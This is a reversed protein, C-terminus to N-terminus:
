KRLLRYFQAPQSAYPPRIWQVSNTFTVPETPLWPGPLRSAHLMLCSIGPAGQAQLELGSLARSLVLRPTPVTPQRLLALTHSSGAAISVVNSLGSPVDTQGFSNGGWGLVTGDACLGLSHFYGAAVALVLGAFVRVGSKRRALAIGFASAIVLAAGLAPTPPVPLIVAALIGAALAGALPLSPAGAEKSWSARM